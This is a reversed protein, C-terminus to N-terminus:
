SRHPPNIQQHLVLPPPPPYIQSIPIHLSLSTSNLSRPSAPALPPLLFISIFVFALNPNYISLSVPNNPPSSSHLKLFSELNPLYSHRSPPLITFRYGIIDSFPRPPLSTLTTKSNASTVLSPSLLRKGSTKRSSM